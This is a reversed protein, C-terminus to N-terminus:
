NAILQDVEIEKETAILPLRLDWPALLVGTVLDFPVVCLSLEESFHFAPLAATFKETKPYILLMKGVGGLYKQGYAFMQYFDSQNLGYKQVGQDDDFARLTEDILKWKTDLVWSEGNQMLLFDPKLQFFKQEQHQCLYQNGVQTKLKAGHELNRQLCVGVYSEFLKEMPFLMSMGRTEGRIALPMNEGLVLECWPKISQYHAMLRDNRWMKFDASIHRSSPIAAIRGALEHALRWSHPAQTHVCIKHLAAKILRNEARDPLFVDHRIQFFHQNGPPQRMQGIVNLQGRLYRQEEEVRHYDFRIGRKILIDLEALFQAMVWEHLPSEFQEINALGVERSAPLEFIVELMRRLVIRSTKADCSDIAHKPLIEVLTGCPTEIVGVYSDLRLSTLEKNRVLNAGNKRFQTSLECLYNFASVSVTAHDLSQAVLNTTTLRAYERVTVCITM